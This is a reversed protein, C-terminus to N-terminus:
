SEGGGHQDDSGAPQLRHGEIHREQAEVRTRDLKKQAGTRGHRSRNEAAEAVKETRERRKRAMRLNVVDGM